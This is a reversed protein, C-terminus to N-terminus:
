KVYFQFRGSVRLVSILTCIFGIVIVSLVIMLVDSWLFAVPYANPFYSAPDNDLSILGFTKQLFVLLSGLVLGLMCGVVVITMGEFLFIRRLIKKQAGLSFLVRLDDQKEIILMMLAGTINFSAVLLIFSLIIFAFLKESKFVKYELEHQELIDRILYKQGLIEKIKSKVRSVSASPKVFIEISTDENKYDLLSKVDSIPAVIMNNDIDSSISFVGSPRLSRYNFANNLSGIQDTGRKPLYISVPPSTFGPSLGLNAAMGAGVYLFGRGEDDKLLYRGDIVLTDIGSVKGYRPGVGKVRGILQRDKFKFLADESVVQQLSEVGDLALIKEKPFDSYNITKGQSPTILLDSDFASYQNSLTNVIGNMASLVIIMAASVIAVGVLAIGSIVNIINLSKKSILYRKAVFFPFNM